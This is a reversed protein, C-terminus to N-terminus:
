ILPVSPLVKHDNGSTKEACKWAVVQGARPDPLSRRASASEVFGFRESQQRAPTKIKHNDSKTENKGPPGGRRESAGGGVSAERKQM